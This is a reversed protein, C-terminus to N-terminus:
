PQNSSQRENEAARQGARRRSVAWALVGLCAVTLVAFVIAPVVTGLMFFVVTVFACLVAAVVAIGAHLRLARQGDASSAPAAGAGPVPRDASSM